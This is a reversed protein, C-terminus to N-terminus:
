RTHLSRQSGCYRILLQKPVPEAATEPLISFPDLGGLSGYRDGYILRSSVTPSSPAKYQYMLPHQDPLSQILGAVEQTFEHDKILDYEPKEALSNVSESSLIVEEGTM